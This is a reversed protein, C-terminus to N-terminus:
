SLEFLLMRQPMGSVEPILLTSKVIHMNRVRARETYKNKVTTFVTSTLMGYQKHIGFLREENKQKLILGKFIEKKGGIQLQSWENEIVFYFLM